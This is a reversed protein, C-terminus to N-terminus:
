RHHARDLVVVFQHPEGGSPGSRVRGIALDHLPMEGIPALSLDCSIKSIQQTLESMLLDVEGDDARTRIPSLRVVFGPIPHNLWTIGDDQVEAAQPEAVSGVGGTRHTDTFGGRLNAFYMFDHPKGLLSTDVRDTRSHSALLDVPRGPLHDSVRAVALLENM